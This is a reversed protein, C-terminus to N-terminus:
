AYQVEEFLGFLKRLLATLGGGVTSRFRMVVNSLSTNAFTISVQRGKKCPFIHRIISTGSGFSRFGFPGQDTHNTEISCNDGGNGRDSVYIYGDTPATFAVHNTTSPNADIVIDTNGPMAKGGALNLFAQLYAVLKSM